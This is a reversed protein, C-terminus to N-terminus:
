FKQPLGSLRAGQDRSGCGQLTGQDRGHRGPVADLGQGVVQYRKEAGLRQLTPPHRGYGGQDQYGHYQPPGYGQPGAAPQQAAPCHILVSGIRSNHRYSDIGPLEGLKGALKAQCEAYRLRGTKIRLRGPVHHIYDSM